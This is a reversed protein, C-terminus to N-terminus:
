ACYLVLTDSKPFKSAWTQFEGPDARHAGRIKFESTGWDRGTRVDLIVTDANTLIKKLAEKTMLGVEQAAGASMLIGSLLVVAIAPLLNKLIRQTMINRRAILTIKKRRGDAAIQLSSGALMDLSM